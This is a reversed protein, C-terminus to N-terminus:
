AYVREKKYSEILSIAEEKGGINRLDVYIGFITRNLGRILDERKFTSFRWGSESITQLMIYEFSDKEVKALQDLSRTLRCLYLEKLADIKNDKM